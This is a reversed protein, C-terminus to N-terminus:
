QQQGQLGATILGVLEPVIVEPPKPGAFVTTGAVQMVSSAAARLCTSWPQRGAFGRGQQSKHETSKPRCAHEDAVEGLRAAQLAALACRRAGAEEREGERGAWSALQVRCAWGGARQRRRQGGPACQGAHHRWGGAHLWYSLCTCETLPLSPHLMPTFSNSPWHELAPVHACHLKM